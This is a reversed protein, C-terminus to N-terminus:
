RRPAGCRDLNVCTARALCGEDLAFGRQRDREPGSRRCSRGASRRHRRRRARAQHRSSAPTRAENRQPTRQRSPLVPEEESSRALRDRATPCDRWQRHNPELGRRWTSGVTSGFQSFRASTVPGWIAQALRALGLSHLLPTIACLLDHSRGSESFPDDIGQSAPVFRYGVCSYAREPIRARAVFLIREGLNLEEGSSQVNRFSHPLM